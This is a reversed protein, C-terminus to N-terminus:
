NKKTNKEITSLHNLIQGLCYLLLCMIVSNIFTPVMLLLDSSTDVALYIIVACNLLFLIISFVKVTDGLGNKQSSSNVMHTYTGTSNTEEIFHEPITRKCNLCQHDGNLFLDNSCYPCKTM